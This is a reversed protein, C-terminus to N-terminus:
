AKLIARIWPWNTLSSSAAKNAAMETLGLEAQTTASELSEFSTKCFLEPAIFEM